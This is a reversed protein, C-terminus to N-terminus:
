SVCGKVLGRQYAYCWSTGYLFPTSVNVNERFSGFVREANREVVRRQRDSSRMKRKLKRMRRQVPTRKM